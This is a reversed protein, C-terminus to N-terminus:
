VVFKEVEAIPRRSMNPLLTEEAAAIKRYEAVSLSKTSRLQLQNLGDGRGVQQEIPNVVVLKSVETRSALSENRFGPPTVIKVAGCQAYKPNAAVSNIFGRFDKFEEDTPRLTVGEAIKTYDLM